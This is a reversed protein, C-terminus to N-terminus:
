GWWWWTKTDAMPKLSASNEDIFLTVDTWTAGVPIATVLPTGVGNQDEMVLENTAGRSTKLASGDPPLAKVTFTVSQM